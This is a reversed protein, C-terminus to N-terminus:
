ASGDAVFNPQNCPAHCHTAHTHTPLPSPQISPNMGCGTAMRSHLSSMCSCSWWRGQLKSRVVHGGKWSLRKCMVRARVLKCLVVAMELDVLLDPPCPQNWPPPLLAAHFQVHAGVAVATSHTGPAPGCDRTIGGGVGSGGNKCDNARAPQPFPLLPPSNTRQIPITASSQPPPPVPSNTRHEGGMAIPSGSRAQASRWAVATSHM